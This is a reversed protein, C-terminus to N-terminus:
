HTDLTADVQRPRGARRVEAAFRELARTAQAETGRITRSVRRYTGSDNRGASVTLMWRSHLPTVRRTASARGPVDQVPM